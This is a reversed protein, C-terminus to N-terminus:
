VVTFWYTNVLSLRRLCVVSPLPVLVGRPATGAAQM